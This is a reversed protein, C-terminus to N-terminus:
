SPSNWIFAFESKYSSCTISSSEGTSFPSNFCYLCEDKYVKDNAGAINLTIGELSFQPGTADGAADTEMPAPDTM